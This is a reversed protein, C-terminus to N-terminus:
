QRGGDIVHLKTKKPLVLWLGDDFDGFLDRVVSRPDVGVKPEHVLALVLEREDARLKALAVKARRDSAPHRPGRTGHTGSTRATIHACWECVYALWVVQGRGRPAAVTSIRRTAM